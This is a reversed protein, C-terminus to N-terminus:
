ACTTTTRPSSSASCRCGAEAVVQATLMTQELSEVACVGAIIAVDDGGLEADGIRIVTKDHKLDRGVLKYPKTVRVCEAVAPLDAFPSPDIPGENGTIGIATRNAGPMPHARYGALEVARVVREIEADTADPTMVILM